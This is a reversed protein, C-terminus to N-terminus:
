DDCEATSKLFNRYFTTKAWKDICVIIRDTKEIEKEKKRERKRGEIANLRVMAAAAEPFINSSQVVHACLACMKKYVNELGVFMSFCM